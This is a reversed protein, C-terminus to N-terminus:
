RTNAVGTLCTAQSLISSCYNRERLRFRVRCSLPRYTKPRHKGGPKGNGSPPMESECLPLVTRLALVDNRSERKNPDGASTSVLKEADDGSRVVPMVFANEMVPELIAVVSGVHVTRMTMTEFTM